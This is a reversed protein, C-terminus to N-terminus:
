PRFPVKSIWEGTFSYALARDWIEKLSGFNRYRGRGVYHGRAILAVDPLEGSYFRRVVAFRREEM